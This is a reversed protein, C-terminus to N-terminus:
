GRALMRKLPWSVRNEKLVPSYCKIVLNLSGLVQNLNQPEEEFPALGEDLIPFASRALKRSTQRLDGIARDLENLALPLGVRGEDFPEPRKGLKTPLRDIRVQSVLGHFLHQHLM